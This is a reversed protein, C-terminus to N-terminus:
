LAFIKNVGTDWALTIDGGNPTVPLGTVSTDLYAILLDNAAVGTDLFIVIAEVTTPGPIATFTVSAGNFIGNTFTKSLIPDSETGVIGSLDVYDAHADSYTYVGTDILIARIVGTNMNIGAQLMQQKTLPYLKNAM